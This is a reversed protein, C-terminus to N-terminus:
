EYMGHAAWLGLEIFPSGEDKLADIRERVLMRGLRHQREQGKKGGGERLEAEQARLADTLERLTQKRDKTMTTTAPM